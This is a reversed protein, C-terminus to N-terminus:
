VRVLPLHSEQCRLVDFDLYRKASSVILKSRLSRLFALDACVASFSFDPKRATDIM